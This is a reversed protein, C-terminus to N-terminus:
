RGDIKILVLLFSPQRAYANRLSRRASSENVLFLRRLCTPCRLLRANLQIIIVPILVDKLQLMMMQQPTKFLCRHTYKICYSENAPSLLCVHTTQTRTTM